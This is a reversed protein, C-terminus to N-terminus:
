CLCFQLGYLQTVMPSLLSAPSLSSFKLRKWSSTLQLTHRRVVAAAAAPRVRFMACM